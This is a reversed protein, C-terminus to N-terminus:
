KIFDNQAAVGLLLHPWEVAAELYAVIVQFDAARIDKLLVGAGQQFGKHQHGLVRVQFANAGGGDTRQDVIAALDVVGEAIIRDVCVQEHLQQAAGM